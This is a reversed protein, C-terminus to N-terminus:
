YEITENKVESLLEPNNHINGIIEIELWNIADQTKKILNGYKDEIKFACEEYSVLYPFNSIRSNLIDGEFIKNGNKDLM